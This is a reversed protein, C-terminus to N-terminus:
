ESANQSKFQEVQEDIIDQKSQVTPQEGWMAMIASKYPDEVEQEVQARGETSNVYARRWNSGVQTSTGNIDAFQQKLISVSDPTLETIKIKDTVEVTAM